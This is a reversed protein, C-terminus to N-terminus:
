PPVSPTRSSCATSRSSSRRPSSTSSAGGGREKADRLYPLAQRILRIVPWLTADLGSEWDEESLESFSGPTPGGGNTILVDLQGFRSVTAKVMRAVDELRTVDGAVTHVDGGAVSM